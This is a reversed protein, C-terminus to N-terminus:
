TDGAERVTAIDLVGAIELVVAAASGPELLLDLGFRSHDYLAAVGASDLYTVARLDVVLARDPRCADALVARMVPATALDVEGRVVVVGDRNVATFEEPPRDVAM